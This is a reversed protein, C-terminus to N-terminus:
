EQWLSEIRGEGREERKGWTETTTSGDLCFACTDSFFFCSDRLSLFYPNFLLSNSSWAWTGPSLLFSLTRIVMSSSSKLCSCVLFPSFSFGFCLGAVKREARMSSECLIVRRQTFLLFLYPTSSLLIKFYHLPPPPILLIGVDIMYMKLRFTIYSCKRMLDSLQFSLSCMLM